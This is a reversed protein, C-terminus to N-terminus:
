FSRWISLTLRRDRDHGIEQTGEIVVTGLRGFEYGLAPSLKLFTSRDNHYTSVNLMLLSRDTPRLGIQSFTEYDAGSGGKIAPLMSLSARLWGGRWPAGLGRGLHVVLRLRTAPQPGALATGRQAGIGFSLPAGPAVEGLHWQAGIEWRFVEAAARRSEAASVLTLRKGLGYEAYAGSFVGSRGAVREQGVWYSTFTAGKERPWPGARAGPALLSILLLSAIVRRM